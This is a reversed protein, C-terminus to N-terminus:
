LTLSILQKQEQESLKLKPKVPNVAYATLGCLLNVVFNTQSRHRHHEIQSGNKLRNHVSEVLGRKKLLLKDWLSMLKNKMNRKIKTILESGQEYLEKFLKSSLYGKDGFIKGFIKKCLEKVPTRDDINGGTLKYSLIEGNNNIVLHLKLGFFWGTSTKGLKAIKKFVKHSSIRRNHCVTLLTSDIFSIGSCRGLMSQLFCFIPFLASAILQVIRSYGPLTKFYKKLTGQVYFIYYHKFTRYGSQHFHILITMLESLYLGCSRTTKKLKQKDINEILMKKWQPEFIKCFDDILCFLRILCDEHSM